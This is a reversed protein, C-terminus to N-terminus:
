ALQKRDAPLHLSLREGTKEAEAQMEAETFTIQWETPEADQAFIQIRFNPQIQPHYGTAFFHTSAGPHIPKKARSTCPILPGTEWDELTYSAGKPDSHAIVFTDFATASGTNKLFGNIKYETIAGQVVRAKLTPM